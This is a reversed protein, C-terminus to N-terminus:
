GENERAGYVSYDIFSMLIWAVFYGFIIAMLYEIKDEEKLYFFFVTMYTCSLFFYSSKKLSVEFKKLKNM